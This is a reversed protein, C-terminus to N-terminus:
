KRKSKFVIKKALPSFIRNTDAQTGIVRGNHLVIERLESFVYRILQQTFDKAKFLEALRIDQDRERQYFYSKTTAEFGGKVSIFWKIM